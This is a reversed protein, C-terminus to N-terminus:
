FLTSHNLGRPSEGCVKRADNAADIAMASDGVLGLVALESLGGGTGVIALVTLGGIAIRKATKQHNPITYYKNELSCHLESALPAYSDSRLMYALAAQGGDKMLVEKIDSGIDPKSAVFTGPLPSKGNGTMHQSLIQDRKKAECTMPDLVKAQFSSASAKVGCASVGPSSPLNQKIFLEGDKDKRLM